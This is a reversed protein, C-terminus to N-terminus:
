TRGQEEHEYSRYTNKMDGCPEAFPQRTERSERNFWVLKVIRVNEADLGQEM